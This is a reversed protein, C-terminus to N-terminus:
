FSVGEPASPNAYKQTVGLLSAAQRFKARVRAVWAQLDQDLPNGMTFQDLIESLGELTKRARQPVPHASSPTDLLVLWMTAFGRYYGMELALESGKDFGLAWGEREGEQRGADMGVTRAASAVREELFVLSDFDDEVQGQM